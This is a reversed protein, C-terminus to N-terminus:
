NLRLRLTEVQVALDEFSTQSCMPCQKRWYYRGISRAPAAGLAQAWDWVAGAIRRTRCRACGPAHCQSDLPSLNLRTTRRVAHHGVPAQNAPGNPAWQAGRPHWLAGVIAEGLSPRHGARRDLVAKAAISLGEPNALLCPEVLREWLNNSLRPAALRSPSFSELCCGVGWAPRNLTPLNLCM